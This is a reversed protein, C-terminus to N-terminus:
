PEEIEINDIYFKSATDNFPTTHIEIEDCVCTSESFPEGTGSALTSLSEDTIEWDFTENVFDVNRIIFQYFETGSLKIGIDTSNIYINANGVSQGRNLNWQAWTTDLGNWRIHFDDESKTGNNRAWLKYEGSATTSEFPLYLHQESSNSDTEDQTPYYVDLSYSGFRVDETVEITPDESTGTQETVVTWENIDGDEFGEWIPYISDKKVPCHHAATVDHSNTQFRVFEYSADNVNTIPIAGIGSETQVRLYDYVNPGFDATEYVPLEVTGNNQTEFEITGIQPM